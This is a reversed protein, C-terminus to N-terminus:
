IICVVLEYELTSRSKTSELTHTITLQINHMIYYFMISSALLINSTINNYFFISYAQTHTLM